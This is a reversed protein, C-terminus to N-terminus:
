RKREEIGIEKMVSLLGSCLENINIRVEPDKILCEMVLDSIRSDLIKGQEDRVVKRLIPVPTTRDRIRMLLSDVEDPSQGPGTYPPHGAIVAYLTAGLGWPDREVMHDIDGHAAEPSLYHLTGGIFGAATLIGRQTQSKKIKEKEGIIKAMGLDILKEVGNGKESILINGPNIDRHVIGKVNQLYDVGGTINSMIAVAEEFSMTEDPRERQPNILTYDSLKKAKQVCEMLIYHYASTEGHGLYRLLNPHNVGEHEELIEGVEGERVFRGLTQMRLAVTMSNLKTKPLLKAAMYIKGTRKVPPSDPHSELLYVDGFGGSGIADKIMGYSRVESTGDTKNWVFSDEFTTGIFPFVEKKMEEPVIQEYEDDPEEYEKPM